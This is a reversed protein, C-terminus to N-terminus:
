WVWAKRSGNPGALSNNDRYTPHMRGLKRVPHYGTDIRLLKDPAITQAGHGNRVEIRRVLNGRSGQLEPCKQCDLVVQEAGDKARTELHIDLTGLDGVEYPGQGLPLRNLRLTLEGGKPTTQREVTVSTRRLEDESQILRETM